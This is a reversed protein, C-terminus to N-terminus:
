DPREEVQLLLVRLESLSGADDELVPEKSTNGQHGFMLLRFRLGVVSGAHPVADGHVLISVELYRTESGNGRGLEIAVDQLPLPM